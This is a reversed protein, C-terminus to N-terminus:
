GAGVNFERLEGNSSGVKFVGIMSKRAGLPGGSNIEMGWLPLNVPSRRRSIETPM